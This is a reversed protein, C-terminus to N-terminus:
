FCAYYLRNYLARLSQGAKKGKELDDLATDCLELYDGPESM